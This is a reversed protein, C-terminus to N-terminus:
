WSYSVLLMAHLWDRGGGVIQQAAQGPRLLGLVGTVSVGEGAQWEVTFNLEDGWDASVAGFSAPQDLTFRYFMVDFTVGDSPALTLRVLESELNGLGLAYEGTIEGQYWSTWDTSGYAIERFREDSATAPDDGDFRAHRFRLAPTWPRSALAYGIEAYYGKADISSSGEEVLEAALTLAGVANWSARASYVDLGKGGPDDTDARLYSAGLGARDGFRYEVNAGRAEGRTDGERPQNHLSFIEVLWTESDLSAVVSQAFAKRMGLYWGGRDGGDAGGDDVLLGTGIGYDLRGVAISLTDGDLGALVDEVRWGVHAQELTLSDTDDFGVTSGAADDGVTSAYVGSLAAFVNGRGARTEFSLTPEVGFDAWQDLDAGLFSESEGFWADSSRYWAGVMDAELVLQAGREANSYITHEACLSPAKAVSAAAVLCLAAPGARRPNGSM